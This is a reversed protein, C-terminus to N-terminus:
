WHPMQRRVSETVLRKVGRVPGVMSRRSRSTEPQSTTVFEPEVVIDPSGLAVEVSRVMPEEGEKTIYYRIPKQMPEGGKKAAQV